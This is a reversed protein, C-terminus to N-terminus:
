ITAKFLCGLAAAVVKLEFCMQGEIVEVKNDPLDFQGIVLGTDANEVAGTTDYYNSLSFNYGASPQFISPAPNVYTLLFYGKIMFDTTATLGEGATNKVADLIYLNSLGFIKAMDPDAVVAAGSTQGNKTRELFDPHDCLVDYVDRSLVATNPRRGTKAQVATQGARIDSIPNSATLDSWKIFENTSPSSAVGTRLNSWSSDGFCKTALSNERGRLLGETVIAAGATRALDALRPNALTRYSIDHALEHHELSLARKIVGIDTRPAKTKAATPTSQAALFYDATFEYYDPTTIDVPVTPFIKNAVFANADCMIAVGVDTLTQSYNLDKLAFGTM